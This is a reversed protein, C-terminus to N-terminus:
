IVRGSNEQPKGDLSIMVEAHSTHSNRTGDLNKIVKYGRTLPETCVRGENAWTGYLHSVHVDDVRVPLVGSFYRTLVVPKKEGNTIETWTGIMDQEDYTKYISKVVFPYHTDKSTITILKGGEWTEKKIDSVQLQLTMNGDSHTVALAAEETNILGYAPYARQTRYGADKLSAIEQDSLKSGYYLIRLEHGKEAELVMTTSKTSIVEQAYLGLASLFAAALTFVRKM